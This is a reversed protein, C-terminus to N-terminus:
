INLDFSKYVSNKMKGTPNKAAFSYIEFFDHKDM